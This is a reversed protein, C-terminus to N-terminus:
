PPETVGSFMASNMDWGSISPPRIPPADSLASLKTARMSPAAAAAEQERKNESSGNGNEPPLLAAVEAGVEGDLRQGEGAHGGQEREERLALGAAAPDHGSEAAVGEGEGGLLRVAGDEGEGASRDAAM